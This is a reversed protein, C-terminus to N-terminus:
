VPETFEEYVWFSRHPIEQSILLLAVRDGDAKRRKEVPFAHGSIIKEKDKPELEWKELEWTPAHVRVHLCNM